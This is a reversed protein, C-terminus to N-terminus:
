PVQCGPLIHVLEELIVTKSDNTIITGTGIEPRQAILVDKDVVAVCATALPDKAVVVLLAHFEDHRIATVEIM